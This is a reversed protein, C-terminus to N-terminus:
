EKDTHLLTERENRRRTRADWYRYSLMRGVKLLVDFPIKEKHLLPATKVVNALYITEDPYTVLEVEILGAYAPIAKSDELMLGKPTVYYFRNPKKHSKNDWHYHEPDSYLKHRRKQKDAYFDSRSVKIEYEWIYQTRTISVLDSENGNGFVFCNPLVALHGKGSLDSELIDQIQKETMKEM